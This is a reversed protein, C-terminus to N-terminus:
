KLEDAPEDSEVIDTVNSQGSYVMVEMISTASTINNGSVAIRLYRAKTDPIDYIEYDDTM